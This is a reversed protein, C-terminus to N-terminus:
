VRRADLHTTLRDVQALADAHAEAKCKRWMRPLTWLLPLVTLPIYWAWTIWQAKPYWSSFWTLLMSHTLWVGPWVCFAVIVAWIAPMKPLVRTTLTLRTGPNEGSASAFLRHEFPSAFAEVSFLYPGQERQFGPLNGRRAATDLRQLVEPQELPTILSPLGAPAANATAPEEITTAPM